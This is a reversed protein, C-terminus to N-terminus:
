TGTRTTGATDATRTTARHPQEPGEAPRAVGGHEDKASIVEPQTVGLMPNKPESQIQFSLNMYEHPANGGGRRSIGSLQVSKNSNINTALFRFPGAYAVYPNISDQNYVRITDDDYDAVVHVRRRDAVKDVAQWFPTNDFEFDHQPRRRGHRQLEIKYRDAQRDRRPHGQDDEAQDLPHNM